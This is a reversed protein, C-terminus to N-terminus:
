DAPLRLTSATGIHRLVHGPGDPRLELREGRCSVVLAPGELAVEKDACDSGAGPSVSSRGAVHDAAVGWAAHAHPTEFETGSCTGAAPAFGEPRAEPVGARPVLVELWLAQGDDATAFLLDGERADALPRDVGAHLHPSDARYGFPACSATYM